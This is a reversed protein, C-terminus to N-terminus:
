ITCKLALDKGTDPRKAHSKGANLRRGKGGVRLDPVDSVFQVRVDADM